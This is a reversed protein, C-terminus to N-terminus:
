CLIKRCICCIAATITVLSYGVAVKVMIKHTDPTITGKELMLRGIAILGVIVAIDFLGSLVCPVIKSPGNTDSCYYCTTVALM